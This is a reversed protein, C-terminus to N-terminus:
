LCGPSRYVLNDIYIFNTSGTTNWKITIRSSPPSIDVTVTKVTSTSATFTALTETPTELTWTAANAVPGQGYEFSIYNVPATFDLTAGSTYTYMGWYDSSFYPPPSISSSRNFVNGNDTSTFTVDDIIYPSPASLSLNDANVTGLIDEFTITGCIIMAADPSATDPLATDPLAADALGQADSNMIADAISAADLPSGNADIGLAADSAIAADTPVVVDGCASFSGLVTLLVVFLRILLRM